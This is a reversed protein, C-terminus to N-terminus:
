AAVTVRAPHLLAGIRALAGPAIRYYVFSRRRERILLGVDLLLKLHYSVTAQALGLSPVFDCVCVGSEPAGALLNVIRLRHRDALAKFLQELERAEADSLTAHALPVCSDVLPLTAV